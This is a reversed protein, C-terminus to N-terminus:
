VAEQIPGELFERLQYISLGTAESMRVLLSSTAPSIRNRLKSITAAKVDLARSLAADNKAELAISVESLLRHINATKHNIQCFPYFTGAYAHKM